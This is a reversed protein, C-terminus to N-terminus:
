KRIRLAIENGSEGLVIDGNEFRIYKQIEIFEQLITSYGDDVKTELSKFMFEFTDNRSQQIKMVTSLESILKDNTVYKSSGGSTISSSTQNILSQLAEIESSVVANVAYSGEITEM